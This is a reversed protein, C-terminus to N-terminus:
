DPSWPHVSGNEAAVAVALREQEAFFHDYNNFGSMADVELDYLYAGWSTYGAEELTKPSEPGRYNAGM